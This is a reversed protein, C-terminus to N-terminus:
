GMTSVHDPRIKYIVRVEGPKRHPYSDIELYKQALADIHAQAGKETIEVVRGRIALHRYPNDPDVISLAVRPNARMHRDKLRGKASNVLVVDAEADVWVPTSHPEGKTSVTALHAFAKKTMLLDRFTEPISRAM